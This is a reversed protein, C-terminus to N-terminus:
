LGDIELDKLFKKMIDFQSFNKNGKWHEMAELQKMNLSIVLSEIGDEYFHTPLEEVEPLTKKMQEQIHSLFATHREAEEKGEYQSAIEQLEKLTDNPAIAQRQEFFLHHHNSLDDGTLTSPFLKNVIRIKTVKALRRNIKQDFFKMSKTVREFSRVDLRLEQDGEWTFSGLVIPRAEKPINRYSTTFKIDKAEEKYLWMWSNDTPDFDMCRLRKFRGIVAKKQNVQYYIRAPQYLEGTITHLPPLPSKHLAKSEELM